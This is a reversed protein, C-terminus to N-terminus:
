GCENQECETLEFQAIARITASAGQYLTWSFQNSKPEVPFVQRTYHVPQRVGPANFGQACWGAYIVDPALLGAQSKVSSPPSDLNVEVYLCREPIAVVGSRGTGLVEFRFDLKPRAYFPREDKIAKEIRAYDVEECPDPCDGAPPLAPPRPVGPPLPPATSPPAIAPPNFNPALNVTIGGLGFNINVPGVNIEVNPSLDINTIPTVLVIPVNLTVNPSINVDTREAQREPPPPDPAPLNPNPRPCVSPDGSLRQPSGLVTTLTDIGSTLATNSVGTLVGNTCQGHRLTFQVTGNSNNTKTIGYIPGLVEVFQGVFVPTNGIKSRLPVRYPVCGCTDGNWPPPSDPVPPLGEPCVKDWVGRKLGELPGQPAVNGFYQEYDRYLGCAFGRAAAVASKAIPPLSDLAGTAVDQWPIEVM